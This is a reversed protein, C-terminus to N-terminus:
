QLLTWDKARKSAEITASEEESMVKHSQEMNAPKTWPEMMQKIAQKNPEVDRAKRSQQTKPDVGWQEMTQKSAGKIAKKKAEHKM